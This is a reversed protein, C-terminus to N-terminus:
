NGEDTGSPQWPCAQEPLIRDDDPLFYQRWKYTSSYQADGLHPHAAATDYDSLRGRIQNKAAKGAVSSGSLGEFVREVLQFVLTLCPGVDRSRRERYAPSAGFVFWPQGAFCWQWGPEGSDIPRSAPWPDVDQVSLDSLVQWFRDADRELEPRPDPPGVLVVLSQRAPGTSALVRYERLTQALGAIGFGPVSEDLAIFWNHEAREGNVGFHCPYGVEGLLINRFGQHADAFWDPWGEAAAIEGSHLPRRGTLASPVETTEAV